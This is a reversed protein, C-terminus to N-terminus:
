DVGVRVDRGERQWGRDPAMERGIDDLLGQLFSHHGTCCGQQVYHIAHRLAHRAHVFHCLFYVGRGGSGFACQRREDGAEVQVEIQLGNHQHGRLRKPAFLDVRCRAKIRSGTRRLQPALGGATGGFGPVFHRRGLLEFLNFPLGFIRRFAVIDGHSVVENLKSIPAQSGNVVVVERDRVPSDLRRLDEPAIAGKVGTRATVPACPVQRHHRM